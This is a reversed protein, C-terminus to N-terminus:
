CSKRRIIIDDLAETIDEINEGRIYIFAEDKAGTNVQMAEEMDELEGMRDIIELVTADHRFFYTGSHESKCTLRKRKQIM